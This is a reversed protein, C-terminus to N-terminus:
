SGSPSVDASRYGPTRGPPAMLRGGPVALPMPGALFPPMAKHLESQLEVAKAPRSTRLSEPAGEHVDSPGRFLRAEVANGHRIVDPLVRYHFRARSVLPNGNCQPRGWCYPLCWNVGVWVFLPSCRRYDALSFISTQLLKQVSTFLWSM